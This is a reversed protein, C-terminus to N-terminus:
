EQASFTLGNWASELCEAARHLADIWPSDEKAEDILDRAEQFDQVAERNAFRVYFTNPESM